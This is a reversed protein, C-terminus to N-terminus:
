LKGENITCNIVDYIIYNIVDYITYNIVDGITYNIDDDITYNKVVDITYNIVDGITYFIYKKNSALNQRKKLCNKVINVKKLKRNFFTNLTIKTRSM